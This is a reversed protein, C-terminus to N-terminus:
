ARHTLTFPGVILARARRMIWPALARASATALIVNTGDEGFLSATYARTHPLGNFEGMGYVRQGNRTAYAYFAIHQDDTYAITAPHLLHQSTWYHPLNTNALAGAAPFLFDEQDAGQVWLPGALGLGLTTTGQHLTVGEGGDGGILVCGTMGRPGLVMVWPGGDWAPVVYDALHKAIAPPIAVAAEAPVHPKAHPGATPYRVPLIVTPIESHGSYPPTSGTVVPIAAQPPAVGAITSRFITLGRHIVWPALGAQSPPATFTLKAAVWGRSNATRSTPTYQGLGYVDTGGKTEYAFFAHQHHDRYVLTAPHLLDRPPWSHPVTEHTLKGAAPFLDNLSRVGISHASGLTLSLSTTGNTLTVGDAGNGGGLASGTMGRPGLLSIWEESGGRNLPVLYDALHAASASPIAVWADATVPASPPWLPNSRGEITPVVMVPIKRLVTSATVTGTTVPIARAPAALRDTPSLAANAGGGLFFSASIFPVAIAVWGTRWVGRARRRATDFM